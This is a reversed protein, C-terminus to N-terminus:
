NAATHSFRRFGVAFIKGDARAVLAGWRCKEVLRVTTEDDLLVTEGEDISAFTRAAAAINALPSGASTIAQVVADKRTRKTIDDGLWVDCSTDDSWLVVGLSMRGSREIQVLAGADGHAAVRGGLKERARALTLRTEIKIPLSVRRM